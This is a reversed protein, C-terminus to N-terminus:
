STTSSSPRPHRRANSDSGLRTRSGRAASAVSRARATRGPWASALPLNLEAALAAAIEAAPDFGRSLLRAPAPPAAVVVAPKAPNTADGDGQGAAPGSSLASAIALAARRALATRAGFKLARVLERATGDYPAAALALDLAPLELSM